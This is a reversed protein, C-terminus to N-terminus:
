TLRVSLGKGGFEKCVFAPEAPASLVDDYRYGIEAFERIAGEGVRETVLWRAFAGRAIKAHVVVFKPEGSAPDATLFRPTVVRGADVHPLVTKSYENAALNVISGSAPLQEAISTGWFRYLNAYGGPPLRYGMELRYPSIGDFPRLIGYLGSLIRLHRGAYTRDAATFSDVQLGSYIDGVFTAAAPAQDAPDASWAAHLDRVKEALDASIKMVQALQDLSLTRLYAVLEEARELLAPTGSPRLGSTPPRMTKSSHMLIIM